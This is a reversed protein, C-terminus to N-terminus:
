AKATSVAEDEVSVNGSSAGRAPNDANADDSVAADLDHGRPKVGNAIVGVLPAGSADLLQRLRKAVDRRSRGVRDVIVVGDVKPLLLFADSVAALEPADIVVLDYASNARELLAEMAHSEILEVPNPPTSPGSPLVDLTRVGTGAGLTAQSGISQTAAEMDVIGNLVDPLGTQSQIGMQQALTPRRLNVELLLVRSGMRAAAGALHRAVTTKGEGPAASSVLVTRIDRATNFSRLRARIMHFAEAEVLPLALPTDEGDRVFRSLAASQPVVGLLPTRYIAEFEDSDRVRPDIRELLLALGFGLFLGLVAGILVNRSTKPSSPGTPVSAEQAVQVTNPQLGALLELSQARDQLDLGDTGVRQQPSLAALQKHVLALASRFYQRTTNEQNSVFQRVYTNAIEAALEPSTTTASVGAINSEPLGSIGLSAAVKEETLGHGLITATKEAMDGLHLLELNSAQQQLTNNVSTPLGAVEQSLQNDNFVVSATATYKKIQHKSYGFAAGAALIFCLVIWVGRRRLLGLARGINPEESDQPV